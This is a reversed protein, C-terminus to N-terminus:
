EGKWLIYLADQNFPHMEIGNKNINLQSVFRNELDIAKGTYDTLDCHFRVEPDHQVYVNITGSEDKEIRKDNTKNLLLDQRATLANAKFAEMVEKLYGYDWAGPFNMAEQYSKPTDFGEGLKTM